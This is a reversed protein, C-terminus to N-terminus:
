MFIDDRLREKEASLEKKLLYKSIGLKKSIEINTYGELILPIIRYDSLDLDLDLDYDNTSKTSYFTMKNIKRKERFDKRKLDVINSKIIFFLYDKPSDIRKGKKELLYLKLLSEQLIDEWDKIGKSKIYNILDKDKSLKEYDM